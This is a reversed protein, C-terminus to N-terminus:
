KRNERERDRAREELLGKTAKGGSGLTGAMQRFYAPTLPKLVVEGERPEFCVQTGQKIHLLVRIRKPIVIQGKVTVTSTEM